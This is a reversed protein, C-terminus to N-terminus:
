PHDVRRVAIRKDWKDAPVAAVKAAFADSLRKYRESVESM